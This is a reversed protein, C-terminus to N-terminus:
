WGLAAVDFRRHPLGSPDKVRLVRLEGADFLSLAWVMVPYFFDVNVEYEGSECFELSTFGYDVVRGDHFRPYEDFTADDYSWGYINDVLVTEEHTLAHRLTLSCTPVRPPGRGGAVLLRGYMQVVTRPSSFAHCWWRQTYEAAHSTVAQVRQTLAPDDRRTQSQHLGGSSAAHQSLPM